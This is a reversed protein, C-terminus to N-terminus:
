ENRAYDGHYHTRAASVAHAAEELTTVVKCLVQKGNAQVRALYGGGDLKRVGRVGLRNNKQIGKNQMNQAHTAPRLNDLWDEGPVKNKHDLNDPLVGYVYLWALRHRSYYKGGIGIYVYGDKRKSGAPSGVIARNCASVRWKM